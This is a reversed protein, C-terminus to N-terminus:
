GEQTVEGESSGLKKKIELKTPKEEDEVNEGGKLDKVEKQLSVGGM